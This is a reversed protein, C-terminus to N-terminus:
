TFHGVPSASLCPQPQVKKPPLRIDCRPSLFNVMDYEFRTPKMMDLVSPMEVPWLSRVRQMHRQLRPPGVFTEIFGLWVGLRKLKAMKNMLWSMDLHNCFDLDKTHQLSSSQLRAGVRRVLVVVTSEAWTDLAVLLWPQWTSM